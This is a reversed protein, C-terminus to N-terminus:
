IMNALLGKKKDKEKQKELAKHINRVRSVVDIILIQDEISGIQLKPPIVGAQNQIFNLAEIMQYVTVKRKIGITLM